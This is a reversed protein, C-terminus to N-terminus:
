NQSTQEAEPPFRFFFRDETERKRGAPEDRGEFRELLM